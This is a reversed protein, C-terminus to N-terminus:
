FKESIQIIKFINKILLIERRFKYQYWYFRKALRSNPPPATSYVSQTEASPYSEKGEWHTDQKHCLVIHYHPDVLAPANPFASHGKMARVELNM